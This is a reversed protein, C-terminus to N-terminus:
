RSILPFFYTPYIPPPEPGVSVCNSPPSVTVGDGLVAEVRYQYPWDARVSGDTWHADSTQAVKLGWDQCGFSSRFLRYSEAQPVATWTMSVQGPQHDTVSIVPAPLSVTGTLPRALSLTTELAARAIDYAFDPTLNRAITDERTHYYPNMDAGVCGQDAVVDSFREVLTIAGIGNLWFSFHDSGGTAGSVLYDFELDHPYSELSQV